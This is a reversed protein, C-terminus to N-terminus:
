SAKNNSTPSSSDSERKAVKECCSIGGNDESGTNVHCYLCVDANSCPNVCNACASIDPSSDFLNKLFYLLVLSSHLLLIVAGSIRLRLVLHLLHRGVREARKVGFFSGLTAM